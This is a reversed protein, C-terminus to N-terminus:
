PLSREPLPYIPATMALEICIQAWIGSIPLAIGTDSGPFYDQINKQM